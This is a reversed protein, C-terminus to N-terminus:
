EQGEGELEQYEKVGAKVKESRTIIHDPGRRKVLEDAIYRHALRLKQSVEAELSTTQGVTTAEASFRLKDMSEGEIEFIVRIM